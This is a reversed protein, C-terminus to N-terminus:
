AYVIEKRKITLTAIAAFLLGFLINVLIAQYYPTMSGNYIVTFVGNMNWWIPSVYKGIQGFLGLGELPMYSGGFMGFIVILIHIISVAINENKLVFGFAVAINSALFSQTLLLILILILNEGWNVDFFVITGILLILIQIGSVLFTSIIKGILLDYKSIPALLTRSLTGNLKEKIISGIPLPVFYYIFLMSIAIGYYDLASPRENSNVQELSVYSDNPFTFDGEGLTILDYISNFREVLTSLVGEVIMSENNYLENKYLTIQQNELNILIGASTQNNIVLKKLDVEEVEELTKTYSTMIEEFADAFENKEGIVSYIVHVEDLDLSQGDFAAAVATGLILILILPLLTMILMIKVERLTQILDKKAIRLYTM